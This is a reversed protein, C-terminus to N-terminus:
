LVGLNITCVNSCYIKANPAGSPQMQADLAVGNLAGMDCEEGQDLYGDGCYHPTMCGVTCGGFGPNDGNARGVDCQEYPSNTVGDGCFPGWKCKTTCGNYLNDDNPGPCRQPVPVSGDGCDCEEGASVIGDGCRPQCQSLKANYGSLILQFNSEPPHRDAGFIAIEYVKNDELRLNVNRNRFDDPSNPAPPTTGNTAVCGAAAYGAQTTTINGTADLCGGETITAQSEGPGGSVVVKGPTQQHVGGLDLVLIGNIFAFLDDDGFFQLTLPTASSYVFFYRAETTFYSDHKVGLTNTVWCGNSLISGAPCDAATVRPPFFYQSGQCTPWIPTGNGHNWYPWLDCLTVQSPNLTDLPYFGNDPGALHTKSAYRYINTGIAPMELVSVFAKNVSDDNTFWQKFSNADKVIPVVGNFIPGNPTSKTYGVLTGSVNGSENTLTIATGASGGLYDGAGNSLPSDNGAQTYTSPIYGDSNAINWDSFQCACQNNARKANLIPKGNLLNPDPIDWCRATSDNGKAPGGSNPVCITTPSTSGNWKNGLWYFDPHGGPSVNEPQFDRYIIPVELCQTGANVPLKCNESDQNTHTTCTFGAEVQCSSSCGDGSVQNGDDCDEGPDVNGDGCVTSCAQNHGSSDRCSPEKTCTKSCGTGDGFFLGNRGKCGSPLNVPDTGCDCQEGMEKIGNGCNAKICLQGPSPPCSAGPEIQCTSSCGDGSVANGDDCTESGTLRSDGCIPTCPMGPVRCQYGPEIRQCDASCGDGSITNGDDCTEDITLIANGCVRKNICPQGPAPCLYDFEIQCLANCGTDPVPNFGLKKSAPVGDDCQEGPDLIGDGCHNFLLTTGGAGATGLDRSIGADRSSTGGGIGGTGATGGAAVGGHGSGGTTATGGIGGTAVPADPAITATGGSGGTAIPADPPRATSGGSGGTAVTGGSGGTAVTGGSAGTAVPADPSRATSGGSGLVGADPM